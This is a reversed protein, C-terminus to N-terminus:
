QHKETDVENILKQFLCRIVLKVKENREFGLVQMMVERAKSHLSEAAGYAVEFLLESAGLVHDMTRKIDESELVPRMIM